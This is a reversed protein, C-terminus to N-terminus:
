SSYRLSLKVLLSLIADRKNNSSTHIIFSHAGKTHVIYGALNSVGTLTGSKARVVVPEGSDTSIATNYERLLEAYPTFIRLIAHMAAVSVRNQRSLGSVEDLTLDSPHIDIDRYARQLLLQTAEAIHKPEKTHPTAELLMVLGLQNAIYNNSYTLMSRVVERLPQPNAFILTQAHPSPQASVPIPAYESNDIRVGNQAFLAFFLQHAYRQAQAYDFGLNIRQAKTGLIGTFQAAIPLVPTQKEASVVRNGVKRLYLTNFNVVLAGNPADYPNRSNASGPPLHWAIRSDDLRLSRFHTHGAQRLMTAMAAISESVLLPDGRGEITLLEGSADIHLRTTLRHDAGLFRLAGWATLIKIISAPVFDQSPSAQHAFLPVGQPDYLTAFQGPALKQEIAAILQTTTQAQAFSAFGLAIALALRSILQAVMGAKNDM